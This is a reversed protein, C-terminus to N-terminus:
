DDEQYECSSTRLYGEDFFYLNLKEPDEEFHVFAWMRIDFKRGKYLLPKEIYKQVVWQSDSVQDNIFSVIDRIKNFIQIGKGQNSAAPKLIWINKHCHKEPVNEVACLGKGIHIDSFRKKFRLIDSASSPTLLFSTAMIDHMETLNGSAM